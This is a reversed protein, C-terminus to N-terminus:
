PAGCFGINELGPHARGPGFWPVCVDAPECPPMPDNVECVPSCCGPGGECVTLDAAQVCLLGPDCTNIFECPDGVEGAPGSVDVGCVFRTDLLYCGQGEPCDQTLPNCAAICLALAPRQSLMCFTDPDECIPAQDTGVCQAVCTGENTKPDVDWCISGFACSDLGTVQSGEVTCPAGVPDPNRAIPSCRSDNWAGGDNGYPVCKFGRPCDQLYVNCEGLLAVDQEDIFGNSTVDGSAGDDVATSTSM